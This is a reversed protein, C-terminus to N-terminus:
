KREGESQPNGNESETEKREDYSLLVDTLKGDDDRKFRASHLDIGFDQSVQEALRKFMERTTTLPDKPEQSYAWGVLRAFPLAIGCKAGTKFLPFDGEDDVQGDSLGHYIEGNDFLFIAEQEENIEGLTNKDRLSYRRGDKLSIEIGQVNNPDLNINTERM